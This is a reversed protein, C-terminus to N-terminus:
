SKRILLGHRYNEERWLWLIEVKSIPLSCISIFTVKFFLYYNIVSEVKQKTLLQRPFKKECKSKWLLNLHGNQFNSHSRSVACMRSVELFCLYDLTTLLCDIPIRSIPDSLRVPIATEEARRSTGIFPFLVSFFLM